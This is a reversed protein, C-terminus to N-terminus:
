VNFRFNIIDGDQVVYEKGELRAKGAAKVAKESGFEKLDDISITEARIFGRKMDTHVKGAADLAVTGKKIPWEQLQDSAVTIFSIVELACYCSAVFKSTVSESIGLEDMFERRSEADLQALEYCLKACISTVATSENVADGLDPQRGLQEEGINVAVVMPKLTLFGLSKIM